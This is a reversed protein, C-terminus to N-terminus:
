SHKNLRVMRLQCYNCILVLSYNAVHPRKWRLQRTSHFPPRMGSSRRGGGFDGHRGEHADQQRSQVRYEPGQIDQTGAGLSGLSASEQSRRCRAGRSGAGQSGHRLGTSSVRRLPKAGLERRKCDDVRGGSNAMSRLRRIFMM